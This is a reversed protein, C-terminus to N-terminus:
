EIYLPQIGQLSAVGGILISYLQDGFPPWIKLSNMAVPCFIVEVTHNTLTDSWCSTMVIAQM